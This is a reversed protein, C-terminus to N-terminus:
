GKGRRRSIRHPWWTRPANATHATITVLEGPEPYPLPRLLLEFVASFITTTAGIGLALTLVATWAFSPNRSLQRLGYRM